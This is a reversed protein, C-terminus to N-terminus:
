RGEYELDFEPPTDSQIIGFSLHQEDPVHESATISDHLVWRFTDGHIHLLGISGNFFKFIKIEGNHEAAM